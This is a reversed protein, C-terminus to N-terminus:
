AQAQGITIGNPIADLKQQKKSPRGPGAAPPPLEPVPSVAEDPIPESEGDGGSEPPATHPVPPEINGAGRGAMAKGDKGCEIMDERAALAPTWIHVKTEDQKRIFRM